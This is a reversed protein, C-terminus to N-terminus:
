FRVMDLSNQAELQKYAVSFALNAVSSTLGVTLYVGSPHRNCALGWELESGSQYVAQSFREVRLLCSVCLWPAEVHERVRAPLSM